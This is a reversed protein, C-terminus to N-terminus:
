PSYTRQGFIATGLRVLTSGEEIATEFDRSMGMSIETLEYQEALHRLRQFYPRTREPDDFWPPMGMLGRLQLYPCGEVYRKVTAIDAEALGSKSEEVSLKVELFIDVGRKTDNLRRALKENDVTQVVDFIKSALTTKNSQLQGIMHFIAGPLAPLGARKGQFEQVYNEGFHRQGAKYATVIDVAPKVKSVAVITIEDPDRGVKQAASAVRERVQELRESIM